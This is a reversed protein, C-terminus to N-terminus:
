QESLNLSAKFTEYEKQLDAIIEPHDEAVNKMESIDDKLNFLFVDGDMM